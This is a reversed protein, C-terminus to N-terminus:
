GPPRVAAAIAAPLAARDIKGIGTRPLAAALVVQAPVFAPGLKERAWLRLDRELTRSPSAGAAPTVLVALVERRDALRVPAAACAAVAPHMEMAAEVGEPSVLQGSPLSFSNSLRGLMVLEGDASRRVVDGTRYWGDVFVSRDLGTNTAYGLMMRDSRLWLEGPEDDACSQGESTRVDAEMEIPMGLVIDSPERATAGPEHATCPGGAETSGYYVLIRAGLSGATEQVTQRTMPSGGTQILRLAPAEPLHGTSRLARAMAVAAPPCWLNTAGTDAARQWIAAVQGVGGDPGVCFAGGSCVTDVFNRRLCGLVHVGAATLSRDGPGIRMSRVTARANRVLSAHSLVVAKSDATTGSTLAIVAPTEPAPDPVDAIAAPGHLPTDASLIAMGTAPGFADPRDTLIASVGLRRATALTADVPASPDVAVVAQGLHVAAWFAPFLGAAPESSFLIVAGAPLGAGRLRDIWGAIRTEAGAYSTVGGDGDVIAPLDGFRARAARWLAPM